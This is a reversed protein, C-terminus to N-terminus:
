DIILKINKVFYDTGREDLKELEYEIVPLDSKYANVITNADIEIGSLKFEKMSNRVAVDDSSQDKYLKFTDKTAIYITDLNNIDYEANVAYVSIKFTKDNEVLQKIVQFEEASGLGMPYKCFANDQPSYGIPLNYKDEKKIEINNGFIDKASKSILEYSYGPFTGEGFTYDTAFENKEELRSIASYIIYENSMKNSYNQLYKPVFSFIERALQSDINIDIYETKDKINNTETLPNEVEINQNKAQENNKEKSNGSVIYSILVLVVFVTVVSASIIIIKKKM